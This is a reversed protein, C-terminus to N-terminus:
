RRAEEVRRRQEAPHFSFLRGSNQATRSAQRGAGQGRAIRAACARPRLRIPRWPLIPCRRYACSGIVILALFRFVRVSTMASM